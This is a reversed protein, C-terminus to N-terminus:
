GGVEELTTRALTAALATCRAVLVSCRPPCCAVLFRAVSCRVVIDIDIRQGRRTDLSRSFPWSCRAVSLSRRAAVSSRRVVLLLLTLLTFYILHAYDTKLIGLSSGRAVLDRAVPSSRRPAISSRDGRPRPIETLPQHNRKERSSKSPLLDQFSSATGTLYTLYILLYLLYTFVYPLCTCM